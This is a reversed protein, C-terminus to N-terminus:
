IVEANTDAVNENRAEDNDYSTLPEIMDLAIDMYNVFNVDSGSTKTTPVQPTHQVDNTM